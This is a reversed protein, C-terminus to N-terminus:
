MQTELQRQTELLQTGIEVERQAIRHSPGAVAIGLWENNMLVSIAVASVDPVNEGRTVFYGRARGAELDVRLRNEDHLTNETIRPIEHNDLWQALEHPPLSGLLAKGISSSHLPKYDGPRTMYRITHLGEVVDLYLVREGERKGVIVTEQTRDRLETLLPRIRELFPDHAVITQSIDLLRRTPYYERRRGVSYLYGRKLLTGVLAHCSSVPIGIHQALRSLAMPREEAEFAEFVGLTRDVSPVSMFTVTNKSISFRNEVRQFVLTLSCHLM